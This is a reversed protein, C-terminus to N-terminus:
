YSASFSDLGTGMWPVNRILEIVQVYLDTRSTSDVESFIGRELLALGFGSVGVISVALLFVAARAFVIASRDHYKLGMVVYSVVAATTGALVGMRSQTLLLAVFIIAVMAWLAVLELKQESFWGGRKSHRV